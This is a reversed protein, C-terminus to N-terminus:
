KVYFIMKGVKPIKTIISITAICISFSLLFLALVNVISIEHLLPFYHLLLKMIPVHLLYVGFSFRSVLEIVGKTKAKWDYGKLVPFLLASIIFLIPNTYWVNQPKGIHYLHIQWIVLIMFGIIIISLNLKKYVKTSKTTFYYGILVYSTYILRNSLFDVKWSGIYFKNILSILFIVIIIMRIHGFSKIAISLLPLIAYIMIIEKMYWTHMLPVKKYLLLESMIDRFVIPKQEMVLFFLNYLVIWFYWVALLVIFNKKYFRVIKEKSDYNRSLLLFGTLMFFLPVGLRGLTFMIFQFSQYTYPMTCFSERNNYGFPFIFEISHNVVVFVIALARIVDLSLNRNDM